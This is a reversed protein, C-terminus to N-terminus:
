SWTTIRWRLKDIISYGRITLVILILSFLVFIRFDLELIVSDLGAFYRATEVFYPFPHFENLTRHLGTTYSMPYLAPSAFFLVMLFYNVINKLDPINKALPALNMGLGESLFGIIQAILLFIMIGILPIGYGILLILAVGFSQLFSDIIRFKIMSTKLVRTRVREAKLGGSFDDISNMGTKLSLQMLRFLTIGIFITEVKASARLVTFVFLYVFSTVIPDLVMWLLGLRRRGSIRRFKKKLIFTARNKDLNLDDTTLPGLEKCYDPNIVREM